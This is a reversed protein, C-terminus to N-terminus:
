MKNAKIEGKKTKLQTHEHNFMWGKLPASKMLGLDFIERDSSVDDWHRIIGLNSHLALFGKRSCEM